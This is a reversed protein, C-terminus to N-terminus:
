YWIWGFLLIVIIWQLFSYSVDIHYIEVSGDEFTVTVDATGNSAMYIQNDSVQAVDPNSSELKVPVNFTVTDKYNFSYNSEKVEPVPDPEAATNKTWHAYLTLVGSSSVSSSSTVLTGGTASTYWGDFNYGDKTPTPLTGYTSGVNVVKSSTSCVGGNANFMVTCSDSKWQAYLTLSADFSYNDGSAYSTGTGDAKTNWSIFTYGSKSPVASSLTIDRGHYKTQSAPEGSGGNANYSVTYINSPELKWIQRTDGASYTAVAVNNSTAWYTLVLSPNYALRIVYGNLVKEFLWWQSSENCDDYLNVNAGNGPNDGWANILRSSSCVPRMKYGTSAPSIYLRQNSPNWWDGGQINTQNADVGGAVDLIKGSSVNTLTYYGTSITTYSINGSSGTGNGTLMNGKHHWKYNFRSSISNYTTKGEWNVQCPGTANCDAYYITDGDVKIVFISHIDGNIRLIDGAYVTGLSYTKEWASGSFFKDGFVEYGMKYAFGMCQWARQYGDEYYAGCTCTCGKGDSGGCYGRNICTVGGASGSCRITGTGNSKCSNYENWYENERYVTKLYAIKNAFEAESLNAAKSIPALSFLMALVLFVALTKKLMKM